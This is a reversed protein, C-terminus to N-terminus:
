CASGACTGWPHIAMSRSPDPGQPDTGRPGRESRDLRGRRASPDGRPRGGRGARQAVVHVRPRVWRDRGHRLGRREGGRVRVARLREDDGQRGHPHRASRGLPGRRVVPRDTRVRDHGRRRDRPRRAHPMGRRDGALLRRHPGRGRADRRRGARRHVRRGHGRRRALDDARARLRALRWMGRSAAPQRMPVRVGGARPPVTRAVPHLAQPDTGERECRARRAHQRSVLEAPRHDDDPRRRRSGPPVRAGDQDRDRGGRKRGVGSLHAPRGHPPLPALEDAYREVAETTFMTGHVYQTANLQETAADILTRDGHGVGVVIAGGAGDLYRRGDADVIWAGEASVATPLTRNLVRPFVHSM